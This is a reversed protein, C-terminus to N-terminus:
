QRIAIDKRFGDIAICETEKIQAGADIDVHHVVPGSMFHAIFPRLVPIALHAAIDEVPDKTKILSQIAVDRRLAEKIQHFSIGEDALRRALTGTSYNLVRATSQVSTTDRLQSQLYKRM